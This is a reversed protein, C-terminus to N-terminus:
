PPLIKTKITHKYCIKRLVVFNPSVFFIQPAVAGFEGTDAPRPLITALFDGM